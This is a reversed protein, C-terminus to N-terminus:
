MCVFRLLSCNRSCDDQVCTMQRWGQKEKEDDEVSGGKLAGARGIYGKGGRDTNGESCSMTEWIVSAKGEGDDLGADQM